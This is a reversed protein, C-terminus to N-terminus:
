LIHTFKFSYLLFFDIKVTFVVGQLFWYIPWLIINTLWNSNLGIYLPLISFKTALYFLILSMSIDRLLYYFSTFLNREYCHKPIAEKLDNITFPQNTKSLIFSAGDVKQDRYKKM